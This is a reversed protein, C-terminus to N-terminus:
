AESSNQAFRTVGKAFMKQKGDDFKISYMKPKLGIFEEIIKGGMEDKFLLTVMKNSDTYLPHNMPYNSFDFQKKLDLNTALEQYLDRHKIEYFLSDTNSYLLQCDFNNKM